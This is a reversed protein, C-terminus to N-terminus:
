PADPEAHREDHQDRPREPDAVAVAQRPPPREAPHARARPQEHRRELRDAVRQPERRDGRHQRHHEAPQRGGRQRARVPAHRPREVAHQEQGSPVEATVTPKPNRRARSSGTSRRALGHSTGIAWATTASGNTTRVIVGPAASSRDAAARRPRRARRTAAGRTAPRRGAARTAPRARPPRSRRRWRARRTRRWRRSRGPRRASPARDGDGPQEAPGPAEVDACPKASLTTSMTSVVAATSSTSRQRGRPPPPPPHTHRRPDLHGAGRTANPDSRRGRRRRGRPRRRRPRRRARDSRCRCTSGAARWRRGAAARRRCADGDVADVDGGRRRVPAADPHHELVVRQERVEVDAGVDGEAEPHLPLAALPRPRAPPRAARAPRGALAGLAAVDGGERAALLLADRQRARQRGRRADEQEVLREAREVPRAALPEDDLEARQEGAEVEGDDRDGVVVGLRERQGVPEDQEVAPADELGTRGDSTHRRVPSSARAASSSPKVLRMSTVTSPRGPWSRRPRGRDPRRTPGGPREDPGLGHPDVAVPRELAGHDGAGEGPARPRSRISTGPAGAAPPRGGPRRGGAPPRRPAATTRDPRRRGAARSVPVGAEPDPAPRRVIGGAGAELELGGRM